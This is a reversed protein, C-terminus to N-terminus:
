DDQRIWRFTLRTVVLGAALWVTLWLVVAGLGWTGGPEAAAFEPPLFVSRTGQALWRLPFASAVGQLWGPLQSFPLYVGSIFQLVVTVPVIVASASRGSRPLRSLAVGLLSTTTIGLLWIGAFRAWAAPESPLDVGFVLTAVALLVVLQLLGTVLVQGAKGLLYSAVPLPTGALRKLTGDGREGAIDIALGQVGSLLVGSAIMGPLYYTAADVVAGGPATGFDPLESFATSFVLLMIVPFAFTFLVSDGARFYTRVETRARDLGLAVANM